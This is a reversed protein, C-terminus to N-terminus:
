RGVFGGGWRGSRWGLDQRWVGRGVVVFGAVTGDRAGCGGRLTVWMVLDGCV